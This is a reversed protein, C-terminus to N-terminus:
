GYSQEDHARHEKVLLDCDPFYDTDQDAQCPQDNYTLLSQQLPMGSLTGQPGAPFITQFTTAFFGPNLIYKPNEAVKRPCFQPFPWFFM